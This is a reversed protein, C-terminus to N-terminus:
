EKRASKWLSEKEEIYRLPDVFNQNSYPNSVAGTFKAGVVVELHLHPFDSFGLNGIKALPTGAQVRQGVEVFPQENHSYTALDGDVLQVVIAFPGRCLSPADCFLPGIYSVVGDGISRIVGDGGVIDVGTHRGGAQYAVPVGFSQSIIGGNVPPSFRGSVGNSESALISSYISHVLEAYRVASPGDGNYRTFAKKIDGENQDLKEKLFCAGFEINIRPDRLQEASPRGAFPMIQMLGIEGAAGVLSPDGHSEQEMIAAVAAPDVSCNQSAEEILPIWESIDSPYQYTSGARGPEIPLDDARKPPLIGKYVVYLVVVGACCWIAFDLTKRQREALAFALLSASVGLIVM